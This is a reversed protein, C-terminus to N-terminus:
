LAEDAALERLGHITGNGHPSQIRSVSFLLTVWSDTTVAARSGSLRVGALDLRSKSASVAVAADIRLGNATVTSEEVRLGVEDAVIAGQDFNASSRVLSVAGATVNTLQVNRCDTIALSHYAGEFVMGDTGLCRGQRQGIDAAVGAPAFGGRLAKLFAKEFLRPTDAMPVHGAGPLIELRASPLIAELLIGTRRPSVRDHEGWLIVAPVRVRYLYPGFDEELLAMSAVAAPNTGFIRSRLLDNGLVLDLDVLPNPMRGVMRGLLGDIGAAASTEGLQMSLMERTYVRRDLIGAVDILVLRSLADPYTGAYRLAIAGGLSHGALIPPAGVYTDVVWKV